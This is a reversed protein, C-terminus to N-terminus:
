VLVTVCRDMRRMDFTYCNHDENAATFNFAEMPNWCVQAACLLL